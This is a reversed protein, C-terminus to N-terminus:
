RSQRFLVAFRPLQGNEGFIVLLMWFDQFLRKAHGGDRPWMLNVRPMHSQGLSTRRCPAYVEGAVRSRM